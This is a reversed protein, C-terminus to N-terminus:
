ILPYENLVRLSSLKRNSQKDEKTLPIKKTKKTPLQSKTHIKQLGQYGTDTLVTFTPKKVGTLRGFEDAVLKNIAEWKM